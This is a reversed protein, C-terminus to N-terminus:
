LHVNGVNQHIANPAMSAVLGMQSWSAVPPPRDTNQLNTLADQDKGQTDVDAEHSGKFEHYAADAGLALGIPELGPIFDMVTSAITLKNGEKEDANDGAIKGGILDEGLAM